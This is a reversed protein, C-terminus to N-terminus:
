TSSKFEFFVRGYEARLLLPMLMSRPVFCHFYFYCRRALNEFMTM